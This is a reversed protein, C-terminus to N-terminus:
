AFLQVSKMPMLKPQYTSPDGWQDAMAQAVGNWTKSRSKGDHGGKYKTYNVFPNPHIKTPELMPLQKLWLCTAKTVPDGFYYPHVVQDPKRYWQWILGRTNEVAIMPIPANVMEMFFAFGERAKEMRDPQVKM